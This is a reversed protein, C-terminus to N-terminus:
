DHDAAEMGMMFASIRAALERKPMHGCGFIDEVGGGGNHMRLLCTGGYAQGLHYNGIQAHCKGDGNKLWPTEPSGTIKNLHNIKAELHRITTIM